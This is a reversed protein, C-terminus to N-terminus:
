FELGTGHSNKNHNTLRERERGGGGLHTMLSSWKACVIFVIIYFESVKKFARM